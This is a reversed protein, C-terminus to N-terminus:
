RMNPLALMNFYVNKHCFVYLALIQKNFCKQALLTAIIVDKKYIKHSNKDLVGYWSRCTPTKYTKTVKDCRTATSISSSSLPKCEM